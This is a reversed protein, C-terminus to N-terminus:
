EVVNEVKEPINKIAETNDEIKEEITKFKLEFYDQSPYEAVKSEVAKVRADLTAFAISIAVGTVIINWANDKLWNNMM